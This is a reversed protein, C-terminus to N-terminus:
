SVIVLKRTGIAHGELRMRVFYVGATLKRGDDARGDWAHAWRGASFERTPVRAVVRGALDVVDFEVAGSHALEFEIRLPGNAPNPQVSQLRSLAPGPGPEVAVTLPQVALEYSGSAGNANAVVIGYWDTAPATYQGSFTGNLVSTSPFGWMSGNFSRYLYFRTDADGQRVFSINYTQGANLFVDFTELVDNSGTTRSIPPAGVTLDSGDDWEVVAGDSGSPRSFTVHYEQRLNHNFDGVAFDVGPDPSFSGAITGSVCTPPAAGSPDTNIQLNWNSTSRVGVASWNHDYEAFRYIETPSAVAIPTGSTLAPVQPCTSVAVFFNEGISDGDHVVVLGYFETVTPTYTTTGSTEFVAANRNAWYQGGPNKFLLLKSDLAPPHTFYITYTTGAVLLVDWVELVEGTQNRGVAPGNVPVQDAGSDWSVRAGATGAYLYPRVYYTGLANWNFDGIVFDARPPVGASNALYGGFCVPPAAGSSASNLGIDWDAGTSRVGVATWYNYQQAFSFYSNPTGVDVNSFQALAVPTTCSSVGISYNGRYGSENTAVVGYWDSASPTYTFGTSSEVLRGSRGTWYPASAPNGFLFIKTNILGPENLFTFYYTTGGTLFVDWVQIPDWEDTYHTVMPGNAQIQDAGSDWEVIGIGNGAFLNAAVHYQGTPNHNFDGVVFDLVSTGGVSSALIGGLCGPNGPADAYARIDWDTGPFPRVALATWYHSSQNFTYTQPSYGSAQFQGSTLEQYFCDAHAPAIPALFHALAVSALVLGAKALDMKSRASM